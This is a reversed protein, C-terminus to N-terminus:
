GKKEWFGPLLARLGKENKVAFITLPKGLDVRAQPFVEAFAGRFLESQEAVNHAQKDGASSVVVFNPSRVDVWTEPKDAAWARAPFPPCLLGACLAFRLVGRAFMILQTDCRVPCTM